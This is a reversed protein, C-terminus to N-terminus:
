PGSDIDIPAGTNRVKVKCRQSNKSLYEKAATENGSGQMTLTFDKGKIEVIFKSAM